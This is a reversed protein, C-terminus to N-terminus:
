FNVEVECGVAADRTYVSVEREEVRSAAAAQGPQGRATADRALDAAGLVGDRGREPRM